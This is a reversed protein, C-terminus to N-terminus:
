VRGHVSCEVISYQMRGCVSHLRNPTWQRTACNRSKSRIEKTCRTVIRRGPWTSEGDSSGRQMCSAWKTSNTASGAAQQGRQSPQHQTPCGSGNATVVLPPGGFCTTAHVENQM